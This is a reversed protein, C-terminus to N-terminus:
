TVPLASVDDSRISFAEEIPVVFLGGDGSHGTHAATRVAEVVAGVLQDPVMIELKTRSVKECRGEIAALVSADSVIVAPLGEIERLADLVRDVMNTRVIAKVEKM